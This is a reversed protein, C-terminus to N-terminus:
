IYDSFIELIPQDTMYKGKCYANGHMHVFFYHCLSSVEAARLKFISVRLGFM